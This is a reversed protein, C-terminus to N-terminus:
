PASDFEANIQDMTMSRRDRMRLLLPIAILSALVLLFSSAVPTDFWDILLAAVLPATGGFIASGLNYGVALASYRAKSPFEEGIAAVVPGTYLMLLVLLVLGGLIVLILGENTMLWLMPVSLLTFGVAAATLTLKRGYRDSLAGFAPTAVAYVVTMGTTVWLATDSQIESFSDLITPVFGLVVYYLIGGYGALLAAIIVQKPLHTLAYRLPQKPVDGEREEELFEETEPMRRRMVLAFLGLAGGVLYCIRWGWDSMFESSTWTTLSAVLASALIVGLGSTFVATSAV